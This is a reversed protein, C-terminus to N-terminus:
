QTVMFASENITVGASALSVTNQNLDGITVGTADLTISNNNADTITIGSSNMVISNQNCDEAKLGNSDLTIKNGNADTIVISKTSDGDDLVVQNGSKTHIVKTDTSTVASPMESGQQEGSATVDRWYCGSWIPYSVDGGEFEIWVGYGPEPLFAIGVQSGAYPVCPDCWGTTTSGLVAPVYAKIRGRTYDVDAVSGRYKGYFRNQLRELVDVIAREDIM